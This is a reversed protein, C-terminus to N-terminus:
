RIKAALAQLSDVPLDGTVNVIRGRVRAVASPVRSAQAAPAPPAAAREGQARRTEFQAVEAENSVTLHVVKGDPLTQEVVMNAAFLGIRAIPLEPIRPVVLGRREAEAASIYGVANAAEAKLAQDRAVAQEERAAMAPPPAAPPPPTAAIAARGAAAGVAADTAVNEADTRVQDAAAIQPARTKAAPASQPRASTMDAESTPAPTAIPPEVASAAPATEEMAISSRQPVGQWAGRGFWGIGLALIITAAWALPVARPIAARQENVQAQLSEFPPAQLSAPAAYSLIEAARTRLDENQELRTRCNACTSLHASIRLAVPDDVPYAGDAYATLEGDDVHSM